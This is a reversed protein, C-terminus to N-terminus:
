YTIYLSWNVFLAYRCRNWMYELNMLYTSSGIFPIYLKEILKIVNTDFHIRM